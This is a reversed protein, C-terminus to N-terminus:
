GSEIFRLNNLGGCERLCLGTEGGEKMITPIVEKADKARTATDVTDAATIGLDGDRAM